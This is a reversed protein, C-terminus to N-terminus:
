SPLLRHYDSNNELTRAGRLSLIVLHAILDSGAVLRWGTEAIVRAAHTFAADTDDLDPLRLLHKVAEKLVM